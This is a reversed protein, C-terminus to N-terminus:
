IQAPDVARWDTMQNRFWTMQRKAYQRTEAKAREIAADLPMDGRAAAIMPGVGIARRAPLDAALDLADIARAEDLAGLALMADFRRNIRGHLWAREPMLVLRECYAPDLLPPAKPVSQWDALSRGTADIVELARTQRQTDSPRLRAAMLPDRAALEDALAQPGAEAAFDRWRARIADPIAPIDSLGQTLARFYLGTGGVIIAPRREAAARDLEIAVEALWRAVSYPLRPDVHGYLRHPAASLDEPSPRATLISLRDYVQMSDANVVIGDRERALRLALASKGSATPGAILVARPHTEM